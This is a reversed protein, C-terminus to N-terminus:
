NSIEAPPNYPRALKAIKNAQGTSRTKVDLEDTRVPLGIINAHTPSDPVVDYGRTELGDSKSPLLATFQIACAM